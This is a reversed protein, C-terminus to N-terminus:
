KLVEDLSTSKIKKIEPAMERKMKRKLNKRTRARDPNHLLSKRKKKPVEKKTEQQETM